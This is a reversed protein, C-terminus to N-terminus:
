SLAMVVRIRIVNTLTVNVIVKGVSCSPLKQFINVPGVVNTM